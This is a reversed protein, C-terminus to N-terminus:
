YVNSMGSNGALRPDFGTRTTSHPTAVPVVAVAHVATVRTQATHNQHHASPQRMVHGPKMVVVPTNRDGSGVATTRDGSGVAAEAPISSPFPLASYEATGREPSRVLMAAPPSSPSGHSAYQGAM